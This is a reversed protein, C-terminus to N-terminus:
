ANLSKLRFSRLAIMRAIIPSWSAHRISKPRKFLSKVAIIYPSNSLIPYNLRHLNRVHGILLGDAFNLRKLRLDPRQPGDGLNLDAGAHRPGARRRLVKGSM